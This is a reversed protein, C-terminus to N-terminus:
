TRAKGYVAELADAIENGGHPSNRVADIAAWVKEEATPAKAKKMSAKEDAAEQKAEAKADAADQKAEAKADAAEQAETQWKSMTMDGIDYTRFVEAVGQEWLEQLAPDTWRGHKYEPGAHTM